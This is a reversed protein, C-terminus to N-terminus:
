KKITEVPADTKIGVPSYHTRTARFGLERLSNIIKDIKPASIRLDSCIRHVDYYTAPM